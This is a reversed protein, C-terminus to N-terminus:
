CQSPTTAKRVQVGVKGAAQIVKEPLRLGQSKVIKGLIAPGDNWPDIADYAAWLPTLVLQAFMPLAATSAKSLPVIMPGKVREKEKANAATGAHM